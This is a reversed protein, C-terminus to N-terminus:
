LINARLSWALKCAIDCHTNSLKQNRKEGIFKDTYKQFLYVTPSVNFTKCCLANSKMM